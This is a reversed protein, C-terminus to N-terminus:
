FFLCNEHERVPLYFIKIRPHLKLAWIQKNLFYEVKYINKKGEHWEGNLLFETSAYPYYRGIGGTVYPLNRTTGSCGHDILTDAAHWHRDQLM